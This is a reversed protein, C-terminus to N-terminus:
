DAKRLPKIFRLVFVAIMVLAMTYWFMAYQLHNNNLHIKLAKPDPYSDNNAEEEAPLLNGIVPRPSELNKAESIEKINLAYWENRAPINEPVFMNPEDPVRLIVDRTRLIVSSGGGLRYDLPAWGRNILITSGDDLLFPTIVHVGPEGERTRPKLAIEQEFIFRGKLQGKLFENEPTLDRTPIQKLEGSDYANIRELLNEKWELRHLQWTGLTCLVGVGAITLTTAWFPPKRLTSM